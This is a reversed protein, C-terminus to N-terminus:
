TTATLKEGIAKLKKQYGLISNNRKFTAATAIVIELGKVLTQEHSGIRSPSLSGRIGRDQFDCVHSIM